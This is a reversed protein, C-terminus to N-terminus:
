CMPCVVHGAWGAGCARDRVGGHAPPELAPLALVPVLVQWPVAEAAHEAEGGHASAASLSCLLRCVERGGYAQQICTLGHQHVM